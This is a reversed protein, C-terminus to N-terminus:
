APCVPSFSNLLTIKLLMSHLRAALRLKLILPLLEGGSGNQEQKEEYKVKLKESEVKLESRQLLQLLLGRQRRQRCQQL